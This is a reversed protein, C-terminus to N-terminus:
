ADISKFPHEIVYEEVVKGDILHETIIRELREFTMSHYWTEEPYIVM